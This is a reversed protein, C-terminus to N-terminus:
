KPQFWSSSKRISIPGASWVWSMTGHRWFSVFIQRPMRLVAELGWTQEVYRWILKLHHSSVDCEEASTKGRCRHAAHGEEGIGWTKGDFVTMHGFNTPVIEVDIDVERHRCFRCTPESNWHKFWRISRLLPCQLVIVPSFSLAHNRCLHHPLLHVWFSISLLKRRFKPRRSPECIRMKDHIM